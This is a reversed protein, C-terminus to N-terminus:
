AEDFTWDYEKLHIQKEDFDLIEEPENEIRDLINQENEEMIEGKVRDAIQDFNVNFLAMSALDYSLGRQGEQEMSESILSAIEKSMTVVSTQKDGLSMVSSHLDPDSHIRLNLNYTEKNEFGDM